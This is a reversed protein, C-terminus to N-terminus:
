EYLNLVEGFKKEKFYRKSLHITEEIVKDSISISFYTELREKHKFLCKSMELASLEELKLVELKGKVPHKELNKRYSDADITFILKVSGDNLQANLVNVLANSKETSNDLLVHLDDIVLICPNNIAALKDFLAAIKKNVENESSAGALLKPM